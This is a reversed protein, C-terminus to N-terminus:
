LLEYVSKMKLKRVNFLFILFFHIKPTFNNLSMLLNKLCFNLLIANSGETAKSALFLHKYNILGSLHQSSNLAFLIM